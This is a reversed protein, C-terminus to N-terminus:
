IGATGDSRSSGNFHEGKTDLCTKCRAGSPMHFPAARSMQALRLHKDSLSAPMTVSIGEVYSIYMVAESGDLEYSSLLQHLHSREFQSMRNLLLAVFTSLM